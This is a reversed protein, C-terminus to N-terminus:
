HCDKHEEDECCNKIFQNVWAHIRMLRQWSSHHMPALRWKNDCQSYSSPQVSTMFNEETYM